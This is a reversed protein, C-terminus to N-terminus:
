SATRWVPAEEVELAEEFWRDALSPPAVATEQEPVPGAAAAEGEWPLVVRFLEITREINKLPRAPLKEFLIEKTEAEVLEKVHGLGGNGRAAIRARRPGRHEGRGTSTETGTWSTGPTSAIRLM